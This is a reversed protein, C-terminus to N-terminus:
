KRVFPYGMTRLGDEFAKFWRQQNEPMLTIPFLLQIEIVGNEDKSVKSRIGARSLEESINLVDISDMTM